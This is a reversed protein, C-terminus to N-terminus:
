VAIPLRHEHKGGSRVVRNHGHINLGQLIPRPQSEAFHVVSITGPTLALLERRQPAISVIQTLLTQIKEPSAIVLGTVLSENSQKRLNLTSQWAPIFDDRQVQLQVTERHNGLLQATQFDNILGHTQLSFNLHVSALVDPIDNLPTDGEVPLFLLRLGQKGAKLKPLTEGLPATENLQCLQAANTEPSFELVSIGCNSQQLGHHQEPTLGLATSILAHITGGHSVILLTQGAQIPLVDQWFAQARGYLDCVPYFATTAIPPTDFASNSHLLPSELPSFRAMQFEHPREIWCRYDNAQHTRVTQYPLGEWAPLDIERLDNRLEITLADNPLQDLIVDATQRVRKLPSAYVVDIKESRLAQGVLKATRQGDTTLVAQDSSGQYRGQENYTSRGHRVFIVRTPLSTPHM